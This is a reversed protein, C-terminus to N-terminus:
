FCSLNMLAYEHLKLWGLDRVELGAWIAQAVEAGGSPLSTFFLTSDGMSWGGLLVWCGSVSRRCPTLMMGRGGTGAEERRGRPRCTKILPIVVKFRWRTVETMEVNMHFSGEGWMGGEVWCYNWCMSPLTQWFISYMTNNLCIVGETRSTGRLRHVEGEM